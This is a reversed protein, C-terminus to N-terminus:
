LNYPLAEWVPLGAYQLWWKSPGDSNFVLATLRTATEMRLQSLFADLTRTERKSFSSSIFFFDPLSSFSASFAPLASLFSSDSTFDSDKVFLLIQGIWWILYNLLSDASTIPTLPSKYYALIRYKFISETIIDAFKHSLITAPGLCRTETSLPLLVLGCISSKERTIRIEQESCYNTM